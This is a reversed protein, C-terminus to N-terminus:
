AINAVESLVREIEQPSNRISPTLRAYRTAYPTVSAIVNRQRLKEVVADGSQGQVDFCVIGSSMASAMPTIVSVGDIGALGQKLQSALGHTRAAVRDKGIAAHYEFAEVMAWQHEFPKFGGPM